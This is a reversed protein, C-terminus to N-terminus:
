FHAGLTAWKTLVNQFASDSDGETLTVPNRYQGRDGYEELGRGIAGGTLDQTLQGVAGATGYLTNQAATVFGPDDQQFATADLGLNYAAQDVAQGTVQSYAHVLEDDRKDPYWKRLDAITAM